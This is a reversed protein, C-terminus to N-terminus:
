SYENESDEMWKESIWQYDIKRCKKDKLEYIHFSNMYTYGAYFVGGRCIRASNNVMHGLDSTEHTHGCLVIDSMKTIMEWVNMNGNYYLCDQEEWYSVPHHMIAIVPLDKRAHERDYSEYIRNKIAVPYNKGVWIKQMKDNKSFWATNVCVITCDECFKVGTLYNENEGIQYPLCKLRKCLLNYNRFSKEHKKLKKLTLFCDAERQEHPYSYDEIESRNVDHNGPCLFLREANLGCVQLLGSIFKAARDYEKEMAKYAIDGTIFIYQIPEKQCITKLKDFFNYTYQKRLEIDDEDNDANFHLDSLHLIRMNDQQENTKDIIKMKKIEELLIPITTTITRDYKTKGVSTLIQMEFLMERLSSNYESQRNCVAERLVSRGDGPLDDVCRMIRELHRKMQTNCCDFSQRVFEEGNVKDWQDTPIQSRLDEMAILLIQLRKPNGGCYYKIKDRAKPELTLQLVSEMQSYVLRLQEENFGKITFPEYLTAFESFAEIKLAIVPLTRHITINIGLWDSYNESVIKFLMAYNIDQEFLKKSRDFNKIFLRINIESAFSKCLDAMEKLYKEIESLETGREKELRGACQILESLRRLSKQRSDSIKAKEIADIVVGAIRQILGIFLTKPHDKPCQMECCYIHEEARLRDGYKRIFSDVFSNLGVGPLGHIQICRGNRFNSNKQYFSELEKEYEIYKLDMM